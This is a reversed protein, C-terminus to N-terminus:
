EVDSDITERQGCKRDETESPHYLWKEGAQEHERRDRGVVHIRQTDHNVAVHDLVHCCRGERFGFMQEGEIEDAMHHNESPHRGKRQEENPDPTLAPQHRDARWQCKKCDAQQKCAPKQQDVELGIGRHQALALVEDAAVLGACGKDTCQSIGPHHCPRGITDHGRESCIGDLACGVPRGGLRHQRDDHRSLRRTRHIEAQVAVCLGCVRFKGRAIDDTKGIDPRAARSRCHRQRAHVRVVGM